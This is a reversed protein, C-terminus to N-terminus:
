PTGRVGCSGEGRRGTRKVRVSRLKLNNWCNPSTPDFPEEEAGLCGTLGVTLVGGTVAIFKGRTYDRSMVLKIIAVAM